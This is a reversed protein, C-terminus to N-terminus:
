FKDWGRRAGSHGYIQTQTEIVARCMHEDTGNRWSGHIHM